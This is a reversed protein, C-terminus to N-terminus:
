PILGGGGGGGSGGGGGDAPTTIEGVYVRNVNDAVDTKSTTAIYTMAGGRLGKDDCYVYYKSSFALGTIVGSNYSVNGHGFHRTHAAVTIKASAGNDTATLPNNSVVTLAGAVNVPPLSTQNTVMEARNVTASAPIAQEDVAEDWAYIADAEEVLILPFILGSNGNEDNAVQMQWDAIRMKQGSLGLPAYSFTVNDMAQDQLAVPGFSGSVQREMRSRELAIRALRQAMTGSTTFPLNVDMWLEDGGDETVYTANILPIIDRPQYESNADAYVGRVANAKEARSKKSRYEIGSLMDTEDRSKIAARSVAAYIRWKGSQFVVAGGMSSALAELNERHSRRPDIMGNCTYRNESGGANLAVSEDCANAEAIINAWDIRSSDVGMGAIIQGDYSSTASNAVRIGTLYDAICLAPNDSWEWTSHDALRHSGSGGNTSDLRPDYLRRGKIVCVPNKIQNNDEQDYVLKLVVYAIGRLRHASTWKTSATDLNTEVTQDDLGLKDYRYMLNNLLGVANNSSFAISTGGWTFSEISEIEHGALAIVMWLDENDDGITERYVLTGSLAAKGYGILRPATPSAQLKLRAGLVEPAAPDKKLGSQVFTTVYTLAALAPDGTALATLQGALFAKAADKPRSIPVFLKVAKGM